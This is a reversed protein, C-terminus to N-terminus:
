IDTEARGAKGSGDDEEMDIYNIELDAGLM